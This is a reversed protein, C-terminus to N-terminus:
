EDLISLSDRASKISERQKSIDIILGLGVILGITILFLIFCVIILLLTILVYSIIILQSSNNICREYRKIVNSM